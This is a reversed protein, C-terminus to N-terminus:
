QHRRAGDCPHVQRLVPSAFGAADFAARVSDSIRGLDEKRVLAIASGGFGGGTMRAGLAGTSLCAQVACDLEACSVQYDDRLSQHSATLLPGIEALHGGALLDVVQRVRENETVVHRVRQTLRANHLGSWSTTERLSPVGLETAAAECDARRRGYEGDALSHKVTTDVLLVALGEADPDFPIHTVTDEGVDFFLLHGAQGLASATQDMLGCPVGVYANEARQALRSLQRLDMPVDYLGALALGIACEVAASSSLGAGVPVTSQLAIDAGGIPLGAARLAWATGLVYDAWSGAARVPDLEEIVASVVQDPAHASVVQLVGDDRRSVKATVRYDIAFPLVLGNNYDTHEGILNVRGPASFVSTM